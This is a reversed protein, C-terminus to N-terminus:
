LKILLSAASHICVACWKGRCHIKDFCREADEVADVLGKQLAEKGSIPKSTLMMHAATEVGVLRPLRQTGGFGPIIGAYPPGCPQTCACKSLSVNWLMRQQRLICSLLAAQFRAACWGSSSPLRAPNVAGGLQLEPLGMKATPAAVRANCSMALECGGGLAVGTIAAALPHGAQYAERM